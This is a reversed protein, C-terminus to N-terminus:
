SGSPAAADGSPVAGGWSFRGHLRDVGVGSVVAADGGDAAREKGDVVLLPDHVEGARQDVAADLQEGGAARAPQQAVLPDRQAADGFHRAHRLHEVAADLREMRLDVGADEGDAVVRLVAPVHVGEAGVQDVEDDDVEVRELLGRPHLPDAERLDHLHDVDAARRHDAGRRLVEAVDAHDDIRGVVVAHDLLDALQAPQGLLRAEEEGALREAVRRGVVRRDEGEEALDVGVARAPAGVREERLLERDLQRLEGVQAVALVRVLPGREVALQLPVLRRDRAGHLEVARLEREVVVEVEVGGDGDDARQGAAGRRHDLVVVGAAGRDADIRELREAPRAVAVQLAGVAADDGEAALHVVLRRFLEGPHEELRHDGRREAGRRLRDEEALLLQAHQLPAIRALEAAGAEVEAAHRAAEEHLLPVARVVQALRPHDALTLRGVLLPLRHAEGPRHDAM